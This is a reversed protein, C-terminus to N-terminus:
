RKTGRLLNNVSDKALIMAKYHATSHPQKRYEAWVADAVSKPVMRWHKICMLKNGSVLAECDTIPCKHTM